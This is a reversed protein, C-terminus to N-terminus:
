GRLTAGASPGSFHPGRRGVHLPYEHLLAENRRRVDEYGFGLRELVGPRFNEVVVDARDLLKWLIDKGEPTKLNLGLSQKNRNAALFYMSVDNVFPPGWRRSDDGYPPPEVKVVRAGMDGMLMTCLPGSLIRSLDVVFLEDLPLM